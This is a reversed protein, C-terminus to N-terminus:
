VGIVRSLVWGANNYTIGNTTGSQTNTAFGTLKDDHIMISKTAVSSFTVAGMVFTMYIGALQKPVFFANSNNMVAAGDKYLSFVLVIGNKQDSVKESLGAAQAANMFYCGSWLLHSGPVADEIASEVQTNVYTDIGLNSLAGSATSAGTGGRSIPLTGSTIDAVKHTHSSEAYESHTHNAAAYGTHTHNKLAYTDGLGSISSNLTSISSDMTDLDDTLCRTTDNNRYIENTSLTPNFVQENLESM